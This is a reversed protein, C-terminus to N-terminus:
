QAGQAYLAAVSAAPLSVNWIRVDDMVASAPYEYPNYNRRGVYVSSTSSPIASPVSGATSINNTGNVYINLSSSPSFTVVLHYWTNTSNNFTASLLNVGNTSGSNIYFRFKSPSATYDVDYAPGAVDTKTLVVGQASLDNIKVWMSASFAGTIQLSTPNGFNISQNSTKLFILAPNANPGTGWTPANSLTGTTGSGSSDAVTSGSGEDLKWWGVSAPVSSNRRHAAALLAKSAAANVEASALLGILLLLVCRMV